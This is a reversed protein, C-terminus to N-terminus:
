FDYPHEKEIRSHEWKIVLYALFGFLAIVGLGLFPSESFAYIFAVVAFLVSMILMLPIFLIQFIVRTIVLTQLCGNPESAPPPHYTM